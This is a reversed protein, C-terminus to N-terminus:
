SHTQIGLIIREMDQEVLAFPQNVNLLLCGNPKNLFEIEGSDNPITFIGIRLNDALYNDIHMNQDFISLSQWKSAIEAGVFVGFSRGTITPNLLMKPMWHQLDITLQLAAWYALHIYSMDDLDDKLLSKRDWQEILNLEHDRMDDASGYGGAALNDLLIAQFSIATSNILQQLQDANLNAEPQPITVTILDDFPCEGSGKFHNFLRFKILFGDPQREDNKQTYTAILAHTTDEDRYIEERFLQVKLAPHIQANIM